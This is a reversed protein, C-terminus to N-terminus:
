VESYIRDRCSQEQPFQQLVVPCNGVAEQFLGSYKFQMAHVFSNFSKKSVLLLCAIGISFVTMYFFVAQTCM